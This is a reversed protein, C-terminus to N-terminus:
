FEQLIGKELLIATWNLTNQKDHFVPNETIHLASRSDCYLPVVQTQIFILDSLLYLIWQLDRIAMAMARCVAKAPSKSM